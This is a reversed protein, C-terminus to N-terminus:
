RMRGSWRTGYYDMVIPDGPRVIAFGQRFALWNPLAERASDFKCVWPNDSWVRMRPETAVRIAFELTATERSDLRPAIKPHAVTLACRDRTAAKPDRARAGFWTIPMVPYQAEDIQARRAPGRATLPRAFQVESM